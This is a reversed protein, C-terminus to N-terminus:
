QFVDLLNSHVFDRFLELLHSEGGEYYIDWHIEEFTAMFKKWLDDYADETCYFRTDSFTFSSDKALELEEVRNAVITRYPISRAYELGPINEQYRMEIFSRYEDDSRYPNKEEYEFDGIMLALNPYHDEIVKGTIHRLLQSMKVEHVACLKALSDFKEQPIRLSINRGTAAVDKSYKAINEWSMTSNPEIAYEVGKRLYFSANHGHVKVADSLQAYGAATLTTTIVKM